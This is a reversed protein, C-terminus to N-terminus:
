ELLSASVRCILSFPEDLNSIPVAKYYSLGTNRLGTLLPLCTRLSASRASRKITPLSRLTSVSSSWACRRGGLCNTLRRLLPLTM